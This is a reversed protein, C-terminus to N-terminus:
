GMLSLPFIEFVTRTYYDLGRVLRHDMVYNIKTEDLFELVSKFHRKCAEDLFDVIQPVNAIVEKCHEDKCDLVRLPNSKLREKCQACVKKANGRYYEKLAKIYQPRCSADGISNVKVVLDKLGLSELLTRAIFISLADAAPTEDGFSEIGLQFFQRYRGAQPNDHRFVPGYYWLQVPHPAVQMGHEIYARAMSATFEPRLALDDGGKTKFSYMEKDVIDTGRGVSTTFLWTSEVVPTDIKDFSYETFIDRARALIFEWYGQEAPLIDNMGKPAQIQKAKAM